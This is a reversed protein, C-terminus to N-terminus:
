TVLTGLDWENERFCASAGGIKSDATVMAVESRQWDSM